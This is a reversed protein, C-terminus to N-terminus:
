QFSAVLKSHIKTNEDYRRLERVVDNISGDFPLCAGTVHLGCVTNRSPEKGPYFKPTLTINDNSHPMTITLPNWNVDEFVDLITEIFDLNKM